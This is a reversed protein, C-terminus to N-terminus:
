HPFPLITTTFCVKVRSFPWHPRTTLLKTVAFVHFFDYCKTFPPITCVIHNCLTITDLHQGIHGTCGTSVALVLPGALMAAAAAAPLPVPVAAAPLM